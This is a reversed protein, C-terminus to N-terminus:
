DSSQSHAEAQPNKHNSDTHPKSPKGLPEAASSPVDAKTVPEGVRPPPSGRYQAAIREQAQALQRMQHKEMAARAAAAKEAKAKEEPTPPPLEAMATMFFVVGGLVALIRKM